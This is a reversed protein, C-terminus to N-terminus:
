RVFRRTIGPPKEVLVRRAAAPSPINEKFRKREELGTTDTVQQSPTRPKTLLLESATELHPTKPM